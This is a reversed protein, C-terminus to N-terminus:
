VLVNSSTEGLKPLREGELPILSPGSVLQKVGPNLNLLAFPCLLGETSLILMIPAPPLTKEDATFSVSPPFLYESIFQRCSMCVNKKMIESLIGFVYSKCM